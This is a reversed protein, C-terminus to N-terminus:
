EAEDSVGKIKCVHLPPTNELRSFPSLPLLNKRNNGNNGNKGKPFITYIYLTDSRAAFSVCCM